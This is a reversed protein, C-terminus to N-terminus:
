PAAEQTATTPTPHGTTHEPHQHLWWTVTGYGLAIGAIYILAIRRFWPWVVVLVVIVVVALLTTM